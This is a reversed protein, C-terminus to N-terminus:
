DDFTFGKAILKKRIVPKIVPYLATDIHQKAWAAAQLKDVTLDQVYLNVYKEALLDVNVKEALNSM